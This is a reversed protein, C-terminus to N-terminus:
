IEKKVEDEISKLYYILEARNNVGLKKFINHIHNKVTHYSIFLEDEIQRYNKRKQLLAIIEIERSTIKSKAYIRSIENETKLRIRLNQMRKKHLALIFFSFILIVAIRFWWTQWFPPEIFIHVAIGQDNWVGHNNSGRVRFTYRGPPINTFTARRNSWDTYIWDRDFEELRYAYMNKRPDTFDLAVFEFSFMYDRYSLKFESNDEVPIRGFEKNLVDFSIIKVPP